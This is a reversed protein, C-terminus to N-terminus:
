PQKHPFIASVFFTRLHQVDLRATTRTLRLLRLAHPIADAFGAEGRSMAGCTYLRHDRQGERHRRGRAQTGPEFSEVKLGDFMTVLDSRNPSPRGTAVPEAYRRLVHPRGDRFSVDM